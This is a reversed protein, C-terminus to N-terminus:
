VLLLSVGAAALNAPLPRKGEPPLHAPSARIGACSASEWPVHHPRRFNRKLQQGVKKKM